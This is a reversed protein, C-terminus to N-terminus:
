RGARLIAGLGVKGADQDYIARLSATHRTTFPAEPRNSLARRQDHLYRGSVANPTRVPARARARPCRAHEAIALHHDGWRMGAVDRGSAEALRSVATDLAESMLITCTEFRQETSRDDCWNRGRAKGSLVHLLPRTMEENAVFDTALDGFDDGFIRSALERRWAHFLLPEPRGPAMTGDWAKLRELADRGATTLPQAV